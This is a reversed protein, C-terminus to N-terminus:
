GHCRLCEHRYGDNWFGITGHTLSVDGVAALPSGVFSALGMGELRRQAQTRFALYKEMPFRHGPPMDVHWVDNHFFKLPRRTTPPAAPLTSASSAMRIRPVRLRRGLRAAGAVWASRQLQMTAMASATAAVPPVLVLVILLLRLLPLPPRVGGRM